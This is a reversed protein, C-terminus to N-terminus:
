FLFCSYCKFEQTVFGGTYCTRRGWGIGLGNLIKLPFFKYKPLYPVSHHKKCTLVERKFNPGQLPHHCGFCCFASLCEEKQLSRFAGNQKALTRGWNSVLFRSFSLLRHFGKNRAALQDSFSEQCISISPSQWDELM